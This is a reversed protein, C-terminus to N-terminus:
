SRSHNNRLGNRRWCITIIHARAFCKQEVNLAVNKRVPFAENIPFKKEVSLASVIAVPEWIM